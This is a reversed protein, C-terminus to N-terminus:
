WEEENISLPYYDDFQRVQLFTILTIIGLIIGIVVNVYKWTENTDYEIEIGSNANTANTVESKNTKANISAFIKIDKELALDGYYNDDEGSPWCWEVIYYAYHNGGITHTDSLNTLDKMSVFGDTLATGDYRTIKYQLPIWFNEDNSAFNFDVVYDLSDNNRNEIKIEASDSMGPAIIKDRNEGYNSGFLTMESVYEWDDLNTEKNDAHLSPLSILVTNPDKGINDGLLSGLIASSALLLVILIFIFSYLKKM